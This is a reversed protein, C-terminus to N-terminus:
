EPEPPLNRHQPPLVDDILTMSIKEYGIVRAVEEALDAPMQIDLRHWPAVCRLLPEGAEIHLGFAGNGLESRPAPLSEYRESSIDLRQLGAAIEALPVDMGLIRNVDSESTYVVQVPQPVPYTDVMGPVIHGGSHERMLQAARRAAIANLTAPVGRTFRQSAESHLKLKQSSRRTNI